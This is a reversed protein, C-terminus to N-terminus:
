EHPVDQPPPAAPATPAPQAILVDELRQLDSLPVVYARAHKGQTFRVEGVAIGAPFVGGDDTTFVREGAEIRHDDPLYMLAPLASDDGALIARTRSKETIVPIRSENDTILRIKAVHDGVSLISGVLGEPTVVASGETIPTAPPAFRITFIPRAQGARVGSLRAPHFSTQPMPSLALLKRLSANEAQLTIALHQWKLLEQDRQRLTENEAYTNLFHKIQELTNDAYVAPMSLADIVPLLVANARHQAQELLAHRQQSFTMLVLALALILGVGLRGLWIKLDAPGTARAPSNPTFRMLSVHSLSEAAMIFPLWALRLLNLTGM